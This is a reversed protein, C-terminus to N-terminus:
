SKYFCGPSFGKFDEPLETGAPVVSSMNVTWDGDRPDRPSMHDQFRPQLDVVRDRESCYEHLAVINRVRGSRPNHGDNRLWLQDSQIAIYGFVARTLATNHLKSDGTFGPSADRTGDYIVLGAKMGQIAQICGSKIKHMPLESPAIKALERRFMMLQAKYPFVILVSILEGDKDATPNTMCLQNAGFILMLLEFIVDISGRNIYSTGVREEMSGPLNIVMAPGIGCPRRGIATFFRKVREQEVPTDRDAEVMKGEYYQGSPFNSVGGRARHNINLYHARFGAKIMRSPLSLQLQEGFQACFVLNTNKNEHANVSTVVPRCQNDDGTMFRVFAQRAFQLGILAETETMRFAEDQWVATIRLKVERVALKYFAEPTSLLVHAKLYEEDSVSQLLQRLKAIGTEFFTEPNHERQDQLTKIQAVLDDDPAAIEIRKAVLASIAYEGGPATKVRHNNFCDKSLTRLYVETEFADEGHDEVDYRPTGNLNMCHTMYEHANDPTQVRCLRKQLGLNYYLASMDDAIKDLMDNSPAMILLQSHSPMCSSQSQPAEEHIAQEIHASTAEPSVRSEESSASPPRKSSSRHEAVNDPAGPASVKTETWNWVVFDDVTSHQIIAMLLQTVHNKGSGPAGSVICTGFPLNRTRNYMAKQDADFKHYIGLAAKLVPDHPTTDSEAHDLFDKLLPLAATLDYPIVDGKVKAIYRAFADANTGSSESFDQGSRSLARLGAKLQGGHATRVFRSIFVHKDRNRRVTRITETPDSGIVVCPLKFEVVPVPTKHMPWDPVTPARVYAGIVGLPEMWSPVTVRVATLNPCQNLGKAHLFKRGFMAGVWAAVRSHHATPTETPEAPKIGSKAAGEKFMLALAHVNIWKDRLDRPGPKVVKDLADIIHDTKARGSKQAIFRAVICSEVIHDIIKRKQRGTSEPTPPKPHRFPINDLQVAFREGVQPALELDPAPWVFFYGATVGNIRHGPLEFAFTHCARQRALLMSLRTFALEDRMAIGLRATQEMVSDFSDVPLDPEVFACEQTSPMDDASKFVRKSPVKEFFFRYPDSRARAVTASLRRALTPNDGRYSPLFCEILIHKTPFTTGLKRSQRLVRKFNVRQEHSAMTVMPGQKYDFDAAKMLFTIKCADSYVDDSKTHLGYERCFSEYKEANLLELVPQSASKPCLRANAFTDDYGVITIDKPLIYDIDLKGYGFEATAVNVMTRPGSGDHHSAASKIYRPEYPVLWRRNNFGAGDSDSIVIATIEHWYRREHSREGEPANREAQAIDTRIKEDM